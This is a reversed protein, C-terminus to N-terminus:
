RGWLQPQYGPLLLADMNERDMVFIRDLPCQNREIVWMGLFKDLLHPSKGTFTSPSAEQMVKWTAPHLLLAVPKEGTQHIFVWYADRVTAAM